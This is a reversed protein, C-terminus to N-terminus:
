FMYTLGVTGLLNNANVQQTAAGGTLGELSGDVTIKSFKLGAGISAVTNNQAPSFDISSVGATQTKSDNILVTQKVSGRLTLWTSAEVELGLVIPLSLATVISDATTNKTTANSLGASYFFENGDKKHSSVVSADITTTNVNNTETGIGNQTNFGSTKIIGSFYLSEMAYGAGASLALTGKFRGDTDNQYNNSLGIAAKVDLAGMRIGGRLGSTDEKENPAIKSKYSSYILTAGWALDGAKMGYSIEVPNQQFFNVRTPFLPAVATRQLISTESQHGLSLGVKADGFSRVVMGEAGSDSTSTFSAIYPSGNLGAAQTPAFGSLTKGSEFTVFDGGVYFMDAPNGFITRTDILHPSSALANFRARTASANVSALAVALIILKKM